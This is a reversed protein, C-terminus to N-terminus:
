VTQEVIGAGLANGYDIDLALRAKTPHEYNSRLEIDIFWTATSYPCVM